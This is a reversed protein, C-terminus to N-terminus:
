RSIAAQVNLPGRQGDHREARLFGRMELAGPCEDLCPAPAAGAGLEDHELAEPM